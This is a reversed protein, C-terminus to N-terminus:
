QAAVEPATWSSAGTAMDVYYIKGSGPDTCQVCGETPKEWQSVGTHHMYYHRGHEEHMIECWDVGTPSPALAPPAPSGAPGSISLRVKRAVETAPSPRGMPTTGMKTPTEEEGGEEDAAGADFTLRKKHLERAAEADGEDFDALDDSDEEEGEEGGGREGISAISLSNLLSGRPKAPTGDVEDFSAEGGKAKALIHPPPPHSPPPPPPAGGGDDGIEELQNSHPSVLGVFSSNLGEGGDESFDISPAKIFEPRGM